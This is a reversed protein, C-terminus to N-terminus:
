CGITKSGLSLHLGVYGVSTVSISKRILSQLAIITKVARLIFSNFYLVILLYFSLTRGIFKVLLKVFSHGLNM